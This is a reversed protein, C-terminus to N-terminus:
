RPVVTASLVVIGALPLATTSLWYAYGVLGFEHGWFCALVALFLAVVALLAICFIFEGHSM